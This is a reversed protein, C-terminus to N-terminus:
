SSAKTSTTAAPHFFPNIKLRESLVSFTKGFFPGCNVEIVHWLILFYDGRAVDKLKPDDFLAPTVKVNEYVARDACKFLAADVEPSTAAEILADKLVTVNLLEIDGSLPVGKVSKMLAKFLAIADVYAAESVVMKSGSPLSFEM